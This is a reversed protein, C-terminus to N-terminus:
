ERVGSLLDTLRKAVPSQYIEFGYGYGCFGTDFGSFDTWMTELTASSVFKGEILAVAFKHLDLVTSFGGGAATGRGPPAARLDPRTLFPPPRVRLRTRSHYVLRPVCM